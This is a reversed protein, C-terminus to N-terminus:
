KQTKQILEAVAGASIQGLTQPHLSDTIVHYSSGVNHWKNFVIPGAAGQYQITKGALLAKKGQEFSHVVVDNKKPRTLYGIVNSLQKTDTTKKDLMALAVLNVADYNAISFPDASYTSASAVQKKSALLANHWIPWGTASTNEFSEVISVTKALTAKGIVGAVAKQWQPETNAEVGIVPLLSPRLQKLESFVTASTTIGCEYILVDPRAALMKSLYSQYSPQNEAVVAKYVVKGGLAQFGNVAALYENHEVDSCYMVAARNYGKKRAWLAQAYGDSADPAVLRWLYTFKSKDFESLGADPFMPVQARNFVPVTAAATDTSPGLVAVLNSSTAVLKEAAPVADAPDGRTDVPTCTLMHGLVGGDANILRVAPICGSMMLPGYSADTGSFPNFVALELSGGSTSSTSTSTSATSSSASTPSSSGASGCGALVLGAVAIVVVIKGVSWEVM